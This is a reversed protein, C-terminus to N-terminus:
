MDNLFLNPSLIARQVSGSSCRLNYSELYGHIANTVLVEFLRQGSPPLNRPLAIGPVKMQEDIRHFLQSFQLRLEEIPAASICRDFQNELEKRLKKSTM